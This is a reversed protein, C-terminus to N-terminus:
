RAVLKFLKMAGLHVSGNRPRVPGQRAASFGCFDAAVLRRPAATLREQLLHFKKGSMHM